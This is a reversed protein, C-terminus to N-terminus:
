PDPDGAQAGLEPRTPGLLQIMLLPSDTILFAITTFPGNEVTQFDASSNTSCPQIPGLSLGSTRFLVFVVLPPCEHTSLM